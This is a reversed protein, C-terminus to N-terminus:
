AARRCERATEIVRMVLAPFDMGDAAAAMPLLSRRSMGPVTNLELLQWQGGEERILDIRGWGECGLAEFARLALAQLDAEEEDDLGCPCHYRTGADSYKAEYDYFERPTDIRVAPLAREGLVGVTYEDGRVRREIMLGDDFVQEIEDGDGLMRIGISSGSRAPKLVWEGGKGRLAAASQADDAFEPTPLGRELWRRKCLRKDWALKSSEADSGTYPVAIADLRRQVAGAEGDDGHLSIFVCRCQSSAVRDLWDRDEAPDLRLHEIKLEKLAEAVAAASRLSIRREVSDGGGLLVVAGSM